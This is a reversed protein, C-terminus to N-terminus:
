RKVTRRSRKRAACLQRLATFKAVVRENIAWKRPKHLWGHCKKFIKGKANKYMNYALLMCMVLLVCTGVYSLHGVRQYDLIPTQHIRPLRVKKHAHSVPPAGPPLTKNAKKLTRIYWRSCQLHGCKANNSMTMFM